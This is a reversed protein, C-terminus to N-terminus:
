VGLGISTTNRFFIAILYSQMEIMGFHQSIGKSLSLTM